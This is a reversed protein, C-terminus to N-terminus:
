VARLARVCSLFHLNVHTVLCETEPLQIKIKGKLHIWFVNPQPELALNLIM